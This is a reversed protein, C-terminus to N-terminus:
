DQISGCDEMMSNQLETRIDVLNENGNSELLKSMM